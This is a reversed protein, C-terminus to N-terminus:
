DAKEDKEGDEAESDEIPKEKANDIKPKVNGDSKKTIAAKKINEAEEEPKKREENKSEEESPKAGEVPTQDNSGKKISVKKIRKMKKRNDKQDEGREENLWEDDYNNYNNYYDGYYDYYDSYSGRQRSELPELGMCNIEPVETEETACENSKCCHMGNSMIMRVNGKVDENRTGELRPEDEQSNPYCFFNYIPEIPNQITGDKEISACMAIKCCHTQNLGCEKATPNDQGVLCTLADTVGLIAACVILCYCGAVYISTKSQRKASRMQVIKKGFM